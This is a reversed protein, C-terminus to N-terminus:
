EEGRKFLIELLSKGLEDPLPVCRSLHNTGLEGEPCIDSYWRAWIYGSKTDEEASEKEWLYEEESEYEERPLLPLVKEGITIIDDHCMIFYNYFNIIEEAKNADAWKRAASNCEQLYDQMEDFSDFGIVDVM